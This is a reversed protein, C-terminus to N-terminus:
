RHELLAGTLARGAAALAAGAPRADLGLRVTFPGASATEPAALARWREGEVVLAVPVPAGALALARSAAAAADSGAAGLPDEGAAERLARGFGDSGRPRLRLVVVGHAALFAHLPHFEGWRPPEGDDELWVAAASARGPPRWVEVPAGAAGLALREFAPAALAAPELRPELAWTLPSLIRDAGLLALDRASTPGSLELWWTEHGAPAAASVTLGPPLRGQWPPTALDLVAARRAGDCALDVLVIGRVARAGVAACGPAELALSRAGGELELWELRALDSADETAVLLRRGDDSFLLPAFRGDPGSPLVLRREGSRRDIAVVEDVGPAVARVMAARAGDRSVAAFRFGAPAEALARAVGARTVELLRELGDEGIRASWLRRGESDAALFRAAEAGALARPAGRGSAIALRPAGGEALPALELLVEDGALAALARHSSREAPALPELRGGAAARAAVFVGACSRNALLRGAGDVDALQWSSSALFVELPWSRPLPPPPQRPAAGDRCGAALLGLLIVRLLRARPQYVPEM